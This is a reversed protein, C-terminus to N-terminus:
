ISPGGVWVKTEPEKTFLDKNYILSRSYIISLFVLQLFVLVM